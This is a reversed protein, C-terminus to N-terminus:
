EKRQKMELALWLRQADKVRQSGEPIVALKQRGPKLEGLAVPVRTIRTRRTVTLSREEQGPVQLRLRGAENM